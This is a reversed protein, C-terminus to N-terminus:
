ASVLKNNLKHLDIHIISKSIVWKLGWGSAGDHGEVGLTNYILSCVGIREEEMTKVKSRVNSDKLFHSSADNCSKEKKFFIRIKIWFSKRRELLQKLIPKFMTRGIKLGKLKSELM